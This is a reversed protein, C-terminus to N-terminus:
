ESGTSDPANGTSDPSSDLPCAGPTFATVEGTLRLTDVLNVEIMRYGFRLRYGDEGRSLEASGSDSQYGKVEQETFWRAAAASGPRQMPYVAPNFGEYRGPRLSDAPYVALAVGADDRIAEIELRMARTCWFVKAPAKLKGAKPGDWSARLRVGHGDCAALLSLLAALAVPYVGRPLFRPLM